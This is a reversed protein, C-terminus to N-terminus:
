PAQTTKQLYIIQTGERFGVAKPCRKHAVRSSPAPTATVLVGPSSYSICPHGAPVQSHSQPQLHCLTPPPHLARRVPTHPFVGCGGLGRRAAEARGCQIKLDLYKVRSRALHRHALNATFCDLLSFVPHSFTPWNKIIRSAPHHPRLTRQVMSKM